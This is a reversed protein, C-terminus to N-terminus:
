LYNTYAEEKEKCEHKARESQLLAPLVESYVGGGREAFKHSDVNSTPECEL